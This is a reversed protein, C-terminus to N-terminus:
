GALRDISEMIFREAEALDDTAFLDGELNLLKAHDSALKVLNRYGPDKTVTVGYFHKIGAEVLLRDLVAMDPYSFDNEYGESNDLVCFYNSSPNNALTERYLPLRRELDIAGTVRIRHIVEEAYKVSVYAYSPLTGSAVVAGDMALKAAPKLKAIGM